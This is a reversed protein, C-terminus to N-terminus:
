KKRRNIITVLKNKVLQVDEVPAFGSIWIFWLLAICIGIKILMYALSFYPITFVLSSVFCGMLFSTAILNKKIDYLNVLDKRVTYLGIGLYCLYAIFTAIASGVVGIYPILVINLIVNVIAAVLAITSTFKFKNKYSLVDNSVNLLGLCFIGLTVWPVLKIADLYRPNILLTIIENAFMIMGGCAVSLFLTYYGLLRKILGYNQANMNEYFMPTWMKRFGATFFQPLSSIQYALTYIGVAGLGIMQEIIYRDAIHLVEYSWIALVLPFGFRLQEFISKVSFKGETYRYITTFSIAFTLIVSPIMGLTKGLAGMKFYVVLLLSVLLSMIVSIVSILAVKQVKYQLVMLTEWMRKPQSFFAIIVALFGYPYFPFDKFIKSFLYPGVALSLLIVLLPTILFFLYASGLLEQRKGHDQNAHYMRTTASLMGPNYFLNLGTVVLSVMAVMGYDSPSLYNTFLPLLLLSVLKTTAEAITVALSGKVLLKGYYNKGKM